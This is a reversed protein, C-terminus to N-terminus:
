DPPDGSDFFLNLQFMVRTDNPALRTDFEAGPARSPGTMPFLVSVQPQFVISSHKAHLDVGLSAGLAFFLEQDTQTHRTGVHPTVAIWPEVRPSARLGVFLPTRSAVIGVAQPVSDYEEFIEDADQDSAAILAPAISVDIDGPERARVLAVKAGVEIAMPTLRLGVDVGDTVGVRLGLETTLVGRAAKTTGGPFNTAAGAMAFRVQGPSLVRPGQLEGVPYCGGLWVSVVSLVGCLLSQSRMLLAILLSQAVGNECCLRDM